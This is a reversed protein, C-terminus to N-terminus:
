GRRSRAGSYEPPRERVGGSGATTPEGRAPSAGSGWAAAGAGERAAVLAQGPAHPPTWEPAGGAPRCLSAGPAATGAPACRRAGVGARARLEPDPARAPRARGPARFLGPRGALGAIPPGPGRPRGFARGRRGPRNGGRAPGRGRGRPLARGGRAGSGHRGPGRPTNEVTAGVPAPGPFYHARNPAPYYYYYFSEKTRKGKEPTPSGNPASAFVPFGATGGIGRRPTSRHTGVPSKRITVLVHRPHLGTPRYPVMSPKFPPVHM